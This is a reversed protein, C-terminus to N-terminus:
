ESVPLLEGEAPSTSGPSGDGVPLLDDNAPAKSGPSGDGVPLLDDATPATSGPSGDGVPLLDDPLAPVPSLRQAVIPRNIFLANEVDGLIAGTMRSLSEVSLLVNMNLTGDSTTMQGMALLTPPEGEACDVPVFFDLVEDYRLQLEGETPNRWEFAFGGFAEGGTATLAGDGFRFEVQDPPSPPVPQVMGAVSFTGPLYEIQWTGAFLAGVSQAFSEATVRCFDLEQASAREAGMSLTVAICVAPFPSKSM